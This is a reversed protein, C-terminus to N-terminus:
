QRNDLRSAAKRIERTIIHESELGSYDDQVATLRVRAVDARGADILLKVIGIRRTAVATDRPGLARTAEAVAEDLKALGEEAAGLRFICCAASYKAALVTRHQPGLLLESRSILQQAMALANHHQGNHMTLILVSQEAEVSKVHDPGFERRTRYLYQRARELSDSAPGIPTGLEALMAESAANGAEAARGLAQIAQDHRGALLAHEAIIYADSAATHELLTSWSTDPMDDSGPLDILYDFALYGQEASGILLSNAGKPFTPASAWRVAEQLSEPRLEPGGHQALYATHMQALVDIPLPRHYGVRRAGVAAAVLAGGRPHRGPTWADRWAEALEPGAALTEAIGFRDASALAQVLRDDETYAQARIREQPTWHRNVHIVHAQRLVARGDRWIDRDAGALEEEMRDRYRDYEHSRMTALAVTRVPPSLLRGLVSLTLGGSGLFRELDDLWVVYNDGEGLGELLDSIAERSSPSVFRYGSFLLRMAEFAARTKGAASEGVLLVFGDRRLASYLEPEIDRPIYPPVRDIVGSVDLPAAPHVGVSIADPLDRVLPSEGRASSIELAASRRRLADSRQQWEARVAIVAASVAAAIVAGFAGAWATPVWALALLGVVVGAVVVAAVRPWLWSRKRQLRVIDGIRRCRVTPAKSGSLTGLRDLRQSIM